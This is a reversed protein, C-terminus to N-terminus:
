SLDRKPYSHVVQEWLQGNKEAWSNLNISLTVASAFHWWFIPIYLIDGPELIAQWPQANAFEPWRALDPKTPDIPSSWLTDNIKTSALYHHDAPAFLIFKKRGAIQANLNHYFDNHITSRQGAAAIWVRLEQRPSNFYDPFQFHSTLAAAPNQEASSNFANVLPINGVYRHTQEATADDTIEDIYDSFRILEQTLDNKFVGDRFFYDLEDDTYRSPVQLHGFSQKLSTPSWWQVAPWQNAVGRIIAPLAPRVFDQEFDRQSPQEIIPVSLISM